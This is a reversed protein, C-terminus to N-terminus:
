CTYTAIFTCEASLNFGQNLKLPYYGATLPLSLQYNKYVYVSFSDHPYQQKYTLYQNKGNPQLDATQGNCDRGQAACSSLTM